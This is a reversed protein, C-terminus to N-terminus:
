FTFSKDILEESSTIGSITAKYNAPISGFYEVAEFAKIRLDIKNKGFNSDGHSTVFANKYSQHKQLPM